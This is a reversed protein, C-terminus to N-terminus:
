AVSPKPDAAVAARKACRPCTTGLINLHQGGTITRSEGLYRRCSECIRLLRLGSDSAPRFPADDPPVPPPLVGAKCVWIWLASAVMGAVSAGILMGAITDLDNLNM